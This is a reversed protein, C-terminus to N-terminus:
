YRKILLGVDSQGKKGGFIVLVEKGTETVQFFVLTEAEIEVVKEFCLRFEVIKESEIIFVDDLVYVVIEPNGKQSFENNRAKQALRLQFFHVREHQKM